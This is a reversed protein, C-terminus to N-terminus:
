LKRKEKVTPVGLLLCALDTVYWELRPVSSMSVMQNCNGDSMLKALGSGFDKVMEFVNQFTLYVFNNQIKDYQGIAPRANYYRFNM